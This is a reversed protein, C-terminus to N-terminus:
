RSTGNSDGLKVIREAIDLSRKMSNSWETGLIEVAEQASSPSEYPESLQYHDNVNVYVGVGDVRRSPEAKVKVLGKLDNPRGGEVVVTVMGPSDVLQNWDQKPVLRNGVAHWSEQDDLQYHFDRNIGLVNLPTEDLLSFVGIVLDRLPEYFAPESTLVQFRDETVSLRFWAMEFQTVQESIIHITVERAEESKILGNTELWGPHVSTPSFQGRLVCNAGEILPLPSM